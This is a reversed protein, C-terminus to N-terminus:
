KKVKHQGQNIKYKIRVGESDNMVTYDNTDDDQPTGDYIFYYSNVKTSLFGLNARRVPFKRHVGHLSVVHLVM